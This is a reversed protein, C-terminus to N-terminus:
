REIRNRGNEKAGYLKRDAREILELATEGRYEAVGGSVTIKIGNEFEIAEINKRLREGARVAEEESIEPFIILFEEGGYRGAIDVDRITGKIIESVKELM